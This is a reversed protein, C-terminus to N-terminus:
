PIDTRLIAGSCRPSPSHLNALHAYLGGAGGTRPPPGHRCGQRRRAIIRDASCPRGPSPRHHADHPGEDAGELAVQVARESERRPRQDGEDLSLIPPNKLIARAIAIRQRQGGFADYRTRGAADGYAFDAPPRHFRAGTCRAAAEVEADSAGPKGYRIITPSWAQSGTGAAGPRDPRAGARPDAASAIDIGDISIVGSQPDYFRLLLQFVTTARARRGVLTVTEGPKVEM